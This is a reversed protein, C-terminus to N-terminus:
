TRQSDEDSEVKSGSLAGELTVERGNGTLPVQLNCRARSARSMSTYM